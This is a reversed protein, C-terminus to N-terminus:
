NNYKFGEILNGSVNLTQKSSDMPNILGQAEEPLVESVMGMIMPLCNEFSVRGNEVSFENLNLKGRMKITGLNSVLENNRLDIIGDDNKLDIVFSSIEPKKAVEEPVGM